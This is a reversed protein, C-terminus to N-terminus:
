NYTFLPFHFLFLLIFSLSFSPPVIFSTEQRIGIPMEIQLLLHDIVSLESFNRGHTLTMSHLRELFKFPRRALELGRLPHLPGVSGPEPLRLTQSLYRTYSATSM